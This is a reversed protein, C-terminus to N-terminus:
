LDRAILMLGLPLNGELIDHVNLDDVLVDYVVVERERNLSSRAGENQRSGSLVIAGLPNGSEPAV